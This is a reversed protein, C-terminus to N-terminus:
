RQWTLKKTRMSIYASQPATSNEPVFDTEWARSAALDISYDKDDYFAGALSHLSRVSHEDASNFRGRARRLQLITDSFSSLFTGKFHRAEACVYLDVVADRVATHRADSCQKEPVFNEVHKAGEKRAIADSEHENNAHPPIPVLAKIREAYRETYIKQTRANDTALYIACDSHKDLFSFFEADSVNRGYLVAHDTRRVHVAVFANGCQQLRNAIAAEISPVPRLALYMSTETPTYKIQPHSDYANCLLSPRNTLVAHQEPYTDSLAHLDHVFTVDPLANFLEDFRTDCFPGLTWLVILGQMREHAAERYSLVVRLKNCLGAEAVVLLTM